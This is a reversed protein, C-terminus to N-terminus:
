SLTESFTCHGSAIVDNNPHFIRFRGHYQNDEQNLFLNIHIDQDPTIMSRFKTKSIKQPLLLKQTVAEALYRVATLQVIAPLVPSEPFHGEFGSFSQPFRFTSEITLHGKEDKGTILKQNCSPISEELSKMPNLHGNAINNSM